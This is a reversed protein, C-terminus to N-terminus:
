GRRKMQTSAVPFLAEAPHCQGKPVGQWMFEAGQERMLFIQLAKENLNPKSQPNNRAVSNKTQQSKNISKLKLIRSYLGGGFTRQLSRCPQIYSKFIFYLAGDM